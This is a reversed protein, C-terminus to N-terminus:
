VFVRWRYFLNKWRRIKKKILFYKKKRNVHCLGFQAELFCYPQRNILADEVNWQISRVVVVVIPKTLITLCNSAELSWFVGGSYVGVVVYVVIQQTHMVQSDPPVQSPKFSSPLKTIRSLSLPTSIFTVRHTSHFDGFKRNHFLFLSKKEM